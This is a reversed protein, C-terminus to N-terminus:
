WRGEWKGVKGVGSAGSAGACPVCDRVVCVVNEKLKFRRIAISVCM